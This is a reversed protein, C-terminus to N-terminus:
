GEDGLEEMMYITEEWEDDFVSRGFGHWLLLSIASFFTSSHTNVIWANQLVLFRFPTILSKKRFKVVFLSPIVSPPKNRCLPLM